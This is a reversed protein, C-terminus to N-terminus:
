RPDEPEFSQVDAYSASVFVLMNLKEMLKPIKTKKVWYDM